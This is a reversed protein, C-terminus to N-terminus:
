LCMNHRCEGRSVDLQQFNSPLSVCTNSLSRAACLVTALLQSYKCIQDQATTTPSVTCMRVVTCAIVFIGLSFVGSLLIKRYLPLQLQRIQNLPLLIIMVDTIIIMISTAVYHYSM